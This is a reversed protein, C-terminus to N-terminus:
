GEDMLRKNLEKIREALKDIKKQAEKRLRSFEIRLKESQRDSEEIQAEYQQVRQDRESLRQSLEEIMSDKEALRIKTKEEQEEYLKRYQQLEMIESFDATSPSMDGGREEIAPFMKRLKLSLDEPDPSQRIAEDYSITSHVLLALLSQNMTQMRYYSVSSEVEEQLAATEGKEILESIRPSVRMIELAPVLGDENARQVLQMSVVGKLVLALQARIQKQQDAPFSDLIRDFTQTASNTHLTSFVLHGTEAATIVTGITESDRMEGVMIVDPDQRFSNRLAERFSVTDTGVERQAVSAVDDAFLFEIPDEITIVHAPRSATIRSVLAALTTSKGSGTPGTILVLGMPPDCFEDLVPPLELEDLSKVDYPIRRFAAALTGRQMYLSGRFRALGRVGYGLDLAMQKELQAKQRDTLIPLLMEKIDDPKLPEAEIPMLRGHIRLLPPRMPKIHLDSAEKETMFRLLQDLKMPESLNYVVQSTPM